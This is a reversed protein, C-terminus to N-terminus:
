LAPIDDVKDENAVACGRLFRVRQDLLEVSFVQVVVDLEIHPINASESVFKDRDFADFFFIWVFDANRKGVVVEHPGIALEVIDSKCRRSGSKLLKRSIL